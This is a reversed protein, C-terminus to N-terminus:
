TPKQYPTCANLWCLGSCMYRIQMLGMTFDILLTKGLAACCSFLSTIQGALGTFAILYDIFTDQGLSCMMLILFLYHSAWPRVGAVLLEILCPPRKSNVALLSNMNWATTM